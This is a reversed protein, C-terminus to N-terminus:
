AALLLAQHEFRQEGARVLEQEQVFRVVVQIDRALAPQLPLEVLGLLGHKEDAVVALQEVVRRAADHREFRADVAGARPNVAATESGIHLGARVTVGPKLFEALAPVLLVYLEFFEDIHVLVLSSETGVHGVPVLSRLGAQGLEQFGPWGLGQRDLLVDLHPELTPPCGLTGDHGLLEFQGSEHLREGRLDPESVTDAHEAGVARALAVEQAQEGGAAGIRLALVQRHGVYHNSFYRVFAGHLETGADPGPEERLRM